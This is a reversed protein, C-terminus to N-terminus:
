FIRCFIRDCDQTRKMGEVVEAAERVNACLKEEQDRM